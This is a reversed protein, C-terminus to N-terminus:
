CAADLVNVLARLSEPDFRMPVRVRRGGTLEVEFAPASVEVGAVEVFAPGSERRLRRAWEQLTSIPVGSRESLVAWTLGERDRETLLREYVERGRRTKRSKAM